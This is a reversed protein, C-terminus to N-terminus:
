CYKQFYGLYFIGSTSLGCKTDSSLVGWGLQSDRAAPHNSRPKLRGLSFSMV